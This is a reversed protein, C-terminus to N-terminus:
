PHAQRLFANKYARTFCEIKKNNKSKKTLANM